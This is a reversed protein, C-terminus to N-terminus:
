TSGELLNKSLEERGPIVPHTKGRTLMSNEELEKFGYSEIEKQKLETL